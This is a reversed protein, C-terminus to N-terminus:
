LLSAFCQPDNGILKGNRIEGGFGLVTARCKGRCQKMYFKCGICGIKKANRYAEFNPNNWAEEVSVNLINPGLYRGTPDVDLIFPCSFVQGDPMMSIYTTLAGCEAYNFPFPKNSKNEYLPCFLDKYKLIISIGSKKIAGEERLNQVTRAFEMYEKPNFMEDTLSYRARGSPKLPMFNINFRYKAALRALFPVDKINDKGVATAIIGQIRKDPHRKNFQHIRKITKHVEDFGGKRRREDNVKRSGELSLTIEDIGSSFVKQAISDVWWGNSNIGVNMGFSKACEIAEFLDKHILAEGGTFRWEMTGAEYFKKIISKTQEITRRKEKLLASSAFYCQKCQFNCRRTYSDFVRIPATLVMDRIHKPPSVSRMSMAKLIGNKYEIFGKKIFENIRNKQPVNINCRKSQSAISELFLYEEPCLLEIDMSKADHILGGFYEKRLTFQHPIAQITTM